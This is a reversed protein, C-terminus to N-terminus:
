PYVDFVVKVTEGTSANQGQIEGYAYNDGPTIFTAQAKWASAVSPPLPTFNVEPAYAISWTLGTKDPIVEVQQGSHVPLRYTRAGNQDISSTVSTQPVGDVRIEATALAEVTFVYPIAPNDVGYESACGADRCLHLRLDGSHTGPELSGNIPLDASFSGGGLPTIAVSGPVLVSQPDELTVYVNSTPAPSLTAYLTVTTGPSHQYLTRTLPSPSFSVHFSDSSTGGGGGGGCGNLLALAAFGCALLFGNRM